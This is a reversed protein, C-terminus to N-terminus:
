ARAEGVFRLVDALVRGDGGFRSSLGLVIPIHGLQPYIVVQARSGRQALRQGLRRSNEPRVIPDADGNLLLMPPAGERAFTIPQTRELPEDTAFIAALRRSRIPLFDYPGALGVVGALRDPTMDLSQLYHPDLALMAAIYAGASHGILYLPEDPERLLHDRVWRVALAGDEVFAPFTVEPHLRYDPIVVTLNHRTLSEAVFRYGEKNGSRWGGGYFFVAVAKPEGAPSVPRYVDLSQRPQDGFRIGREAEYEGAPTLADLAGLPSCAGLGLAAGLGGLLRRRSPRLMEGKGPATPTYRAM